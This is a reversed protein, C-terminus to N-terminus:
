PHRQRLNVHRVQWGSQESAARALRKLANM